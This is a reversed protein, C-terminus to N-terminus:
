GDAAKIETAAGVPAANFDAIVIAVVEVLILIAVGVISIVGKAVCNIGAIAEIFIKRKLCTIGVVTVELV